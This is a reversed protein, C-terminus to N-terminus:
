LQLMSRQFRKIIEFISETVRKLPGLSDIKVRFVCVPFRWRYLVSAAQSLSFKVCKGQLWHPASVPFCRGIVSFLIIHLPNWYANGSNTVLKLFTFVFHNYNYLMTIFKQVAKFIM